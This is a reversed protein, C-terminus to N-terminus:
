KKGTAAPTATIEWGEEFQWGGYVVRAILRMTDMIGSVRKKWKGVSILTVAANRAATERSLFARYEAGIEPNIFSYFDRFGFNVSKEVILLLRWWRRSSLPAYSSLGGTWVTCGRDILKKAVCIATEENACKWCFSSLLDFISCMGLKAIDPTVLLLAEDVRSMVILDEISM